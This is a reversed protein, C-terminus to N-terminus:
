GKDAGQVERHNAPSRGVPPHQIGHQNEKKPYNDM